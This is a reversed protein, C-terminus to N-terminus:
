RRAGKPAPKTPQAAAPPATGGKAPPLATMILHAPSASAKVM